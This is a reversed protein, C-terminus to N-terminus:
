TAKEKEKCCDNADGEYAYNEYCGRCLYIFISEATTCCALAAEESVFQGRCGPCVYRTKRLVNVM